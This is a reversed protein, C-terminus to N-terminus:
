PHRLEYPAPIPTPDYPTHTGPTDERSALQNHFEALNTMITRLISETTTSDYTTESRPHSIAASMREHQGRGGGRHPTTTGRKPAM